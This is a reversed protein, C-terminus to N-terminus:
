GNTVLKLSLFSLLSDICKAFVPFKKYLCCALVAPIVVSKVFKEIATCTTKGVWYGVTYNWIKSIIKFPLKLLKVWWPDEHAKTYNKIVEDTFKNDKAFELIAQKLAAADEDSLANETSRSFISFNANKAASCSFGPVFCLSLTSFILLSSLFKKM